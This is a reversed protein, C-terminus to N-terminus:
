EVGDTYFSDNILKIFSEQKSQGFKELNEEGYRITVAGGSRHLVAWDRPSFSNIIYPHHSTVIYQINRDLNTVFEHFFNIASIGLSNEYEDILYTGGDQLTMSDVMILMIKQMGSSLEHLPIWNDSGKEKVAVVPVEGPLQLNPQLSQLDKVDVKRVFNFADCFSEIIFNYQEPYIKKLAYMRANVNQSLILVGNESERFKDLYFPPIVAIDYLTRDTEFFDRRLISAFANYLPAIYEEEMLLAVSATKLSLKPLSTGNYEFTNGERTVLTRTGDNDSLTLAEREVVANGDRQHKTKIEWDYLGSDCKVKIKWHGIKLPTKGSVALAGLNFMTMLLKTKGTGSDGVVLNVPGLEFPTYSWEYPFEQKFEYRVISM